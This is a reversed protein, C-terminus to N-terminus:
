QHLFNEKTGGRGGRQWRLNLGDGVPGKKPLVVSKSGNQFFNPAGRTTTSYLEFLTKRWAFKLWGRGRRAATGSPRRRPGPPPWAPAPSAPARPDSFTPKSLIKKFFISKQTRAGARPSDQFMVGSEREHKLRRVAAESQDVEHVRDPALDFCQQRLHQM